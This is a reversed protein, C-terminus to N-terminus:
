RKETVTRKIDFIGITGCILVGIGLIGTLIWNNGWSIIVSCLCSLAIVLGGYKSRWKVLISSNENSM